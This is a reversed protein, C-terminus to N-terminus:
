PLNRAPLDTAAAREVRDPLRRVRRRTPTGAFDLLMKMAAFDGGAAALTLARALFALVTAPEAAALERPTKRLAARLEFVFRARTMKRPGPKGGPNGSRGKQFRTHVPPMHRTAGETM